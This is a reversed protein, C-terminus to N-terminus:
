QRDITHESVTLSPPTAVVFMRSHPDACPCRPLWRSLRSDGVASAAAPPSHWCGAPLFAALGLQGLMIAMMTPQSSASVPLGDADSKTVIARDEYAQAALDRPLFVHRPVALFAESVTDGARGSVRLSEALRARAEALGETGESMARANM